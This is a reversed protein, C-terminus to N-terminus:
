AHAVEGTAVAEGSLPLRGLLREYFATWATSAFVFMPAVVVGTALFAPAMLLSVSRAISGAAPSGAADAGAVMISASIGVILAPSLVVSALTSYVMQAVYVFGYMVAISRGSRRIVGLSWKIAPLPMSGDLVVARVAFIGAVMAVFVFAVLLLALVATVITWLLVGAVDGRAVLGNIFEEALLGIAVTCLAYFVLWPLYLVLYATLARRYVARAATWLDRLAVTRDAFVARAHIAVGAEFLVYAPIALLAIGLAGFALAPTSEMMAIVSGVDPAEASVFAMSVSTEFARMAVLLTLVHAPLYAVGAICAFLWLSRSRMAGLARGILDGYRM